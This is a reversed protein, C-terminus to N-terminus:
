WSFPQPYHLRRAVDLGRRWLQSELWLGLGSPADAYVRACLQYNQLCLACPQDIRYSSRIAMLLINQGKLFKSAELREEKIASLCRAFVAEGILTLPMGLDLANIVTWKGTGKQGAVDLIKDVLPHGDTTM